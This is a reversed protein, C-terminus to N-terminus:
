PEGIEAEGIGSNCLHAVLTPMQREGRSTSPGFETCALGVGDQAMYGVM